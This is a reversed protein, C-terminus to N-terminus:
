IKEIVGQNELKTITDTLEWLPVNIKNAIDICDLSGDCFALFNM